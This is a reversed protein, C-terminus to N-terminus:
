VFPLRLHFAGDLYSLDGGTRTAIGRSLFLGLGTGEGVPKTTFFPEFLHRRVEPPVGPGDDTIVLEVVGPFLRPVIVIRRAGADRANVLLNSLVQVLEGPECRVPPLAQLEADVALDLHGLTLADQLVAHLEASAPGQKRAYVLMRNTIGQCRDIAKELLDVCAADGPHRRLMHVTTKMAALPNNIEHAVGAAMVGLSAQRGAALMRAQAEQLERHAQRLQVYASGMEVPFVLMLVTWPSLDLLLTCLTGLALVAPAQLKMGQVQMRLCTRLPIDEFVSQARAQLSAAALVYAVIALPAPALAVLTFTTLSWGLNFVLVRGPKRNLRDAVLGTLACVLVGPGVGWSRAAGFYLCEGLNLAGYGPVYLSRKEGYVAVAALVLLSLPAPTTGPQLLASPLYIALGLALVFLSFSM